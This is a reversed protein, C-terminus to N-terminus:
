IKTRPGCPSSWITWGSGSWPCDQSQPGGCRAWSGPPQSQSEKHRQHRHHHCRGTMESRHHHPLEGPGAGEWGPLRQDCDTLYMPPIATANLLSLQLLSCLYRYCLASIVIAYLLSLQLTSCLYRYCLASIATAYLLSPLIKSCLYRYCLSSIVIVSCLSCLTSFAILLSLSLTGPKLCLFNNSALKLFRSPM